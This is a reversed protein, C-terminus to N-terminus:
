IIKEVGEELASEFAFQHTSFFLMNNGNLFLAWLWTSSGNGAFRM